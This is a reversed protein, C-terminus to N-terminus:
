DWHEIKELRFWEGAITLMRGKSDKNLTSYFPMGPNGGPRTSMMHLTMDSSIHAFYVDKGKKLKCLWCSTGRTFKKYLSIYTIKNLYEM